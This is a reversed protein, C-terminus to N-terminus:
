KISTLIGNIEDITKSKAMQFQRLLEEADAKRKQNDAILKQYEKVEADFRSIDETVKSQLKSETAQLIDIRAQGDNLIEEVPINTVQMVGLINEKTSGAPLKSVLQQLTYVTNANGRLPELANKLIAEAASGASESVDASVDEIVSDSINVAKTETTAGKTKPEQADLGQRAGGKAGDKPEEVTEFLKDFIGM